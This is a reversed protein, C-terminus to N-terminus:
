NIALVKVKYSNDGLEVIAEDGKKKGLIAVALPSENSIKGELISAETTGVITYECDEDESYDRIKVKCGVIVKNQKGESSEIIEANDLQAQISLIEAEVQAQYDKAADYEANESLDGFGRAIRIRESADKRDVNILHELREKLNDYGEKTVVYKKEM